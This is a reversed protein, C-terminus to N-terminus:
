DWKSAGARGEVGSTNCPLSHMRVGEGEMTKVKPNAILDMLSNTPADHHTNERM